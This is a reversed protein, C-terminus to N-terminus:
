KSPLYGIAAEKCNRDHLSAPCDFPKLTQKDLCVNIQAIVPFKHHKSHVCQIQADHGLGKKVAAHISSVTYTKSESPVIQADALYKDLHIQKFAELTSKFYSLEDKMLPSEVSCTGHKEYEHGAHLIAFNTLSLQM